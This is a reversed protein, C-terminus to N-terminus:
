VVLLTREDTYGPPLDNVFPLLSQITNLPGVAVCCATEYDKWATPQM